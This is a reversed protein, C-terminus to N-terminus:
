GEILAFPTHVPIKFQKSCLERTDAGNEEGHVRNSTAWNKFLGHIVFGGYNVPIILFIM